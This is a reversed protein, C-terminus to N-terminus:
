YLNRFFDTMNTVSPTNNRVKESENILDEAMLPKNNAIKNAKSDIGNELIKWVDYINGGIRIVINDFLDPSKGKLSHGQNLKNKLKIKGYDNKDFVFVKSEELLQRCITTDTKKSMQHKYVMDKLSKDFTILGNNIMEVAKFASEDKFKAYGSAGRNTTSADGRYKYCGVFSDVLYEFRQTDLYLRKNDLMGYKDVVNHKIMFKRITPQVMNWELTQHYEIDFCHYGDWAMMVMNDEGVSAPDCTIIIEGNRRPPNSFLNFISDSKVSDEVFVRDDYKSYNWDTYLQAKSAVSNSLSGIYDPNEALLVENDLVSLNFFVCSKILHNYSINARKLLKLKGDIEEKCKDYVEKKSNGWVVNDLTGDIMYLFRVVGNMDENVTGDDNIWGGGNAGSGCFVRMWCEREPNQSCILQKKGKGGGRLRTIIYFPTAFDFADAEDMKIKNTQVGKFRDELVKPNEDAVHMFNAKAGNDFSVGKYRSQTITGIPRQKGIYNEGDKRLPFVKRFTDAIGGSAFFQDENKRIYTVRYKPNTLVDYADDMVLNLTKGGGANGTLCVIDCNSRTAQRQIGKYPNFITKM